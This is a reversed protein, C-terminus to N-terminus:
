SSPAQRARCSSSRRPDPRPARSPTSSTRRTAATSPATRPTRYAADIRDNLDADADVFTVDKDVGGASIHGEHREQTRRFWAATRGNVASATVAAPRAAPAPQSGHDRAAARRDAPQRAPRAPLGCPQRGTRRFGGRGAGGIQRSTNLVGSATGARQAPVSDLLLATLSPVALAGGLGVPIMLVALLWTPTGAPAVCLTVLGVAMLFQGAAIPARPGFRAAVRAAALNTFAVLVTMPLFALGTGLSSMGRQEQFYLSLLFVLGYFGVNLAFGVAVSIAVPRSRFLELPVMPHAGRAQAALFVALAVVALAALVRPAGLGVAGGEIVGYTLAGMALVATAQGAWDFPAKWRPSRAIRTLLLLALAGAPLNIFFITRWSLLSLFGGLVPGAASAVAGGVAWVSIARARKAPDPYAQRILALSAPLMVAAGAGQVLRAAVLVGLGPALGCAASAAVFM